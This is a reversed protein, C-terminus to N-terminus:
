RYNYIYYHSLLLAGYKKTANKLFGGFPFDLAKESFKEDSMGDGFDEEAKVYPRITKAVIEDGMFDSVGTM